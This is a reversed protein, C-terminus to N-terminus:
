HVTFPAVYDVNSSYGHFVFSYNGAPLGGIQPDFNDIEFLGTGDAYTYSSTGVVINGPANIWIGLKEGPSFNRAVFNLHAVNKRYPVVDAMQVQGNTGTAQSTNGITFSVLNSIAVSGNDVDTFIAICNAITTNSTTGNMSLGLSRGQPVFTFTGTVIEGPALTNAYHATLLNISPDSFIGTVFASKGGLTDTFKAGTLALNGLDLPVGVEVNTAEVSGLNIAAVDFNIPQGVAATIDQDVRLRLAVNAHGHGNTSTTSDALAPSFSTVLMALLMAGVIVAGRASWKRNFM